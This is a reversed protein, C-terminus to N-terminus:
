ANTEEKAESPEEKKENEYEETCGLVERAAVMADFIQNIVENLSSKVLSLSDTTDWGIAGAKVAELLYEHAESADKGIEALMDMLRTIKYRPTDYKEM